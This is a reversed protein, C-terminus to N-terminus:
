EPLNSIGLSVAKPTGIVSTNEMNIPKGNYGPFLLPHELMWNHLDRRYVSTAGVRVDVYSNIKEAAQIPSTFQVHEGSLSEYVSALMPLNNSMKEIYGKFAPVVGRLDVQTMQPDYGYMKLQAALNNFDPKIYILHSVACLTIYRQIDGSIASECLDVTRVYGKHLIGQTAPIPDTVTRDKFIARLVDQNSSALMDRTFNNSRRFRVFIIGTNLMQSVVDIQKKLFTIPQLIDDKSVTYGAGNARVISTVGKEVKFKMYCLKGNEATDTLDKEFLAQNVIFTRIINKDPCKFTECLWDLSKTDIAKIEKGNFVSKNLKNMIDIIIDYSEKLAPNQALANDFFTKNRTILAYFTNFGTIPSGLLKNAIALNRTVIERKSFQGGPVYLLCATHNLLIGQLVAWHGLTGTITVQPHANDWARIIYSGLSTGGFDLEWINQPDPADKQSLTLHLSFGQPALASNAQILAASFQCPTWFDADEAPLGAPTTFMNM